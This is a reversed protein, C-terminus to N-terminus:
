SHTHFYWDSKLERPISISFTPLRKAFRMTSWERLKWSGWFRYFDILLGTFMCYTTMTERELKVWSECLYGFTFISHSTNLARRTLLTLLPCIAHLGWAFFYQKQSICQHRCSASLCAFWCVLSYCSNLNVLSSSTVNTWRETYHFHFQLSIQCQILTTDYTSFIVVPKRFTM